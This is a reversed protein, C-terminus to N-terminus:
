RPTWGASSAPASASSCGGPWSATISSSRPRRPIRGCGGRACRRPPAAPASRWPPRRGAGRRARPRPRRRPGRHPRVRVALDRPLHRLAGDRQHAVASRPAAAGRRARAARSTCPSPGRGRPRCASCRPERGASQATSWTRTPGDVGAAVKAAAAPARRRPPRPPRWRPRRARGTGRAPSRRRTRPEHLPEDARALRHDGDRQPARVQQVREGGDGGVQKGPAGAAAASDAAARARSPAAGMVPRRGTESGGCWRTPSPISRWGRYHDVCLRLSVSFDAHERQTEADRRSSM